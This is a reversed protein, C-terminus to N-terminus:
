QPIFTSWSSDRVTWPAGHKQSPDLLSSTINCKLIGVPPRQWQLRPASYPVTTGIPVLQLNLWTAAEESAKSVIYPSDYHVKEYCLAVIAM